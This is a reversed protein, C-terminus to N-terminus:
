SAFYTPVPWEATARSSIRQRSRSSRVAKVAPREMSGKPMSRHGAAAARRFEATARNAQAEPAAEQAEEEPAPTWERRPELPAMRLRRDEAAGLREARDAVAVAGMERRVPREARDRAAVAGMERRVLQEARDEAEVVGEARCRRTGALVERTTPTLPRAGRRLAEPVALARAPRVVMAELGVRRDVWAPPRAEM